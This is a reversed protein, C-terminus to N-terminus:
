RLLARLDMKEWGSWGSAKLWLTLNSPMAVIQYYTQVYQDNQFTPGGDPVTADFIQMMVAANIKGKHREGLALLNALREMTYGYTVGDGIVPLDNWSPDIYHNSSALLGDGRRIKTDFSASWEYVAANRM